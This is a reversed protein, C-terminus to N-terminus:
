ADTHEQMVEDYKVGRAEMELHRLAMELIVPHQMTVAGSEWRSITNQTVGLRQALEVQSLDMRRRIDRMMKGDMRQNYCLTVGNFIAHPISM